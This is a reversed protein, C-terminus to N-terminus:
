DERLIQRLIETTEAAHTTPMDHTAGTVVEQRTARNWQTLKGLATLPIVRDIEGWIAVVPIRARGIKRHEAEQVDALMYRRSSLVAPLFGRRRYQALKVLAIAANPRRSIRVRARLGAALSHLWDGILPIQRCFRTFGDEAMDIGGPALLILRKVRHPNDAAFATAISGGMSYGLLTLDDALGQDALLDTLQRLFFARNQQGRVTDSYGRGYLDYVLLRYGLKGLRDGIDTWIPSPTTLGHIAVVVPGRVPGGWQYHTVGQSLKAFSGAAGTRDPKNRLAEVASPAIAISGLVLIPVIM